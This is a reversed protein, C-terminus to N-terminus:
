CGGEPRWAAIDLSLAKAINASKPDPQGRAAARLVERPDFARSVTTRRATLVTTYDLAAGYRDTLNTWSGSAAGNVPEPVVQAHAPGAVAVRGHFVLKPEADGAGEQWFSLVDGSALGDLAGHGLALETMGAEFRVPWPGSMAASRGPLLVKADLDGEFQPSALNRRMWPFADAHAAVGVVISNKLDRYTAVNTDRLAASVYMTLVSQVRREEPSAWVPGVSQMAARNAPSAFIATLRGRVASGEIEASLAFNAPAVRVAEGRVSDGAHCFDGIFLVDAGKARIRDLAEGIEDDSIAQPGFALFLEDLGDAESLAKNDATQGGHGSLYVVVQDGTMAKEAAEALAQLIEKRSAAKAGNGGADLLRVIDEDEAGRALLAERMALLDNAVGELVPRDAAETRSAAALVGYVRAHATEVYSLLIVAAVLAAAGFRATKRGKVSM